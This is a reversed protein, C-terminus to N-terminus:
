SEEDHCAFDADPSDQGGGGAALAAKVRDTHAEAIAEPTAAKGAPRKKPRRQVEIAFDPCHLECLLCSTCEAPRAILPYGLGDRDFVVEPCLAICIGCAKCLDLELNIQPPSRAEEAGAAPKEATATM